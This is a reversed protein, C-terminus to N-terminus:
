PRAGAVNELGRQLIEDRGASVGAITRSAPVTPQVGHGSLDSGDHNLVEMGTWTLAYGGPVVFTNSNGNTGATPEGVIDALGNGRVMALLTESYSIARTDTLFAVRSGLNPAQPAVSWGVSNWDRDHGDPLMHVPVRFPPTQIVHDTFRGLFAPRIDRPYGRLDFVVPQGPEVQRLGNQLANDDLRTLDFYWAGVPFWTIPAPRTERDIHPIQASPSPLVEQDRETGDISRLRLQVAADDARWLMDEAARWQRFAPTSASVYPVTADLASATPTGDVSLVVDGVTLGSSAEGALGTIVLEGEIPQWVLPLRHTEPRLSVDGHGDHLDAVMRRLVNRFSAPDVETAGAALRDQLAAEWAAGEDEFGPYFHRFVNWAIVVAGLRRARGQSGLSTSTSPLPATRSPKVDAARATLPMSIVLGEALESTWVASQGTSVRESQYVSSSFKVGTHRWRVFNGDTSGTQSTGQNSGAFTLGPALPRFWKELVDILQRESEATEAEVAGQAAIAAWRPDDPESLPSFWRVYGYLKTFAALNRLGSRTPAAGDDVDSPIEGVIQLSSADIWASGTGHLLLGVTLKTADHAVPGVIEYISWDGSRIPRDSMNDFFGPSGGLRDVRFWLGAGGGGTGAGTRVAARFRVVQGRFPAADLAQALASFGTPAGSRAIRYSSRGEYPDQTDAIVDLNVPIARWDDLGSMPALEFDPNRLHGVANQAYSPAAIVLVVFTLALIRLRGAVNGRAFSMRLV